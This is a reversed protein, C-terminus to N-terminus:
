GDGRAVHLRYAECMARAEVVSPLRRAYAAAQWARVVDRVTREADPELRGQIHRLYDGETDGPQVDILGRETCVGIAGRYLLALADLLRGREIAERAAAVVRVHARTDEAAGDFTPLAAEDPEVIANRRVGRLALRVLWLVVALALAWMGWRLVRAIAPMRALLWVLWPSPPESEGRTWSRLRWQQVVDERGFEPSALITDVTANADFGPSPTSTTRETDDVAPPSQPSTSSAQAFTYPAAILLMLLVVSAGGVRRALARFVLEIDWAELDTRRSIYWGFQAALVWPACLADSAVLVLAWTRAERLPMPVSGDLWAFTAAGTGGPVLALAVIVGSIAILGTASLGLLTSWGCAGRGQATLVRIRARAARGRLGELQWVALWALRVVSVRRWTLSALWAGPRLPARLVARLAGALTAPRDFCRAALIELLAREAWPRLLWALCATALPWPSVAVLLLAPAAYATVWATGLPGFWARALELGLDVAEWESRPRLEIAITDTRM